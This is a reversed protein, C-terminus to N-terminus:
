RSKRPDPAVRVSPDLHLSADPLLDIGGDLEIRVGPSVLSREPVGGAPAPRRSAIALGLAFAAAAVLVFAVALTLHRTM